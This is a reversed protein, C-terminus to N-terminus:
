YTLGADPSVVAGEPTVRQEAPSPTATQGGSADTGGWSGVAPNRDSFEFSQVGSPQMAEPDIKGVGMTREQGVRFDKGGGYRVGGSGLEGRTGWKERTRQALLPTKSKRWARVFSLEADSLDCGGGCEGGDPHM